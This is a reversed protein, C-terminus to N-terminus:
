SHTELSQHSSLGTDPGHKSQTVISHELVTQSVVLVLQWVLGADVKLFDTKELGLVLTVLSITISTEQSVLMM